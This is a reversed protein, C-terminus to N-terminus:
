PLTLFNKFQWPDPDPTSAPNEPFFVTRSKLPTWDSAKSILNGLYPKAVKLVYDHPLDEPSCLGKKPNDIMWEIAGLLGAAVQLTTANKGKIIKRTQEISLSTGTWWSNYDHGMLFAGLIDKGSTIDDTMTRLKPQMIYRRAKLEVLSSLAEHCPMYVYHVTPRYIAKGSQDRVTLRDSIGFAEGHRVIMGEIEGVEPVWSRAWTNIGMRALFIQNDPGIVPKEALLPLEKEHTGWGMESPATGEEHFGPISWTNVFENVQKPKNTIQTDRESCHIVKVGLKQALRPFDKKNKYELLEELDKGLIKKDKVLKDAIDLLGKKVFHSILGPNAGHDIVATASDKPWTKIMERLSMQRSHLTKSYVTPLNNTDWLEVSTNIYLNNHDHCWKIIDDAGINWALDIVFGNDGAYKTMVANLNEPTIRKRYYKLGKKTFPKLQELKNEFDIITINKLPVDVHKLFLPLTCQAVAGYGLITIKGNFKKSM